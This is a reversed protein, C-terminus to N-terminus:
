ASVRINHKREALNARNTICKVNHAAYPGSDYYRAMCYQNPHRGRMWIWDEGLHSEWWQIYEDLSFEFAIGRKEAGRVHQYYARRAKRRWYTFQSHKMCLCVNGLDGLCKWM